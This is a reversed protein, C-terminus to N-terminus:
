EKRIPWFRNIKFFLFLFNNIFFYIFLLRTYEIGVTWEILAYEHESFASFPGSFSFSPSLERRLPDGGLHWNSFCLERLKRM